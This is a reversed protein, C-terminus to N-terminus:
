EGEFVASKIAHVIARRNFASQTARDIDIGLVKGVRIALDLDRIGHYQNTPKNEVYITHEDTNFGSEIADAMEAIWEAPIGSERCTELSWIEDGVCLNLIALARHRPISM